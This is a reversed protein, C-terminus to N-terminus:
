KRVDKFAMFSTLFRRSPTLLQERLGGTKTLEAGGGLRNQIQETLKLFLLQNQDLCSKVDIDFIRLVKSEM